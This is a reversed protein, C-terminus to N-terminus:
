PNLLRGIAEAQKFKLTKKAAIQITEGTRPNRGTRAGRETVTFKGFNNIRVEEGKEISDSVIGFVDQIIKKNGEITGGLKEKMAIALDVTNM